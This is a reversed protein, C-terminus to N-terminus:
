LTIWEADLSALQDLFGDAGDLLNRLSDPSELYAEVEPPFGESSEPPIEASQPEVVEWGAHAEFVGIGVVSTQFQTWFQLRDRCKRMIKTFHIHNPDRFKKDKQTRLLVELSVDAFISEPVRESNRHLRDCLAISAKEFDKCSNIQLSTHEVLYDSFNKNAKKYIECSRILLAKGHKACRGNKYLLWRITEYNFTEFAWDLSTKGSSDTLNPKAEFACLLDEVVQVRQARTADHLISEQGVYDNVLGNICSPPAANEAIGRMVKRHGHRCAMAFATEGTDCKRTVDSGRQLLFEVLEHRGMESAIMLPTRADHTRAHLNARAESVLWHISSSVGNTCAVHLFTYGNSDVREPDAGNKVLWRATELHGYRWDKAITKGLRHLFPSDDDDM